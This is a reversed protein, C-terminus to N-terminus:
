ETIAWRMQFYNHVARLAIYKREGVELIDKSNQQCV